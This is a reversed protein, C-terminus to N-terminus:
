RARYSQDAPQSSAFINRHLRWVGDAGRVWLAMFSGHDSFEAQGPLQLQGEYTGIQYAKDGFLELEETTYKVSKIEMAAFWETMFARAAAHGRLPPSNAPRVIPDDTYLLLAAELDKRALTKGHEELRADIASRAASVDGASPAAAVCSAVTVSGVVIILGRSVRM